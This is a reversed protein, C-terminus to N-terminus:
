AHGADAHALGMANLVRMEDHRSGTHRYAALEEELRRLREAPHLQFDDSRPPRDSQTGIKPSPSQRTRFDFVHSRWHWLDPAYRIFARELLETMWIVLVGPFANPFLERHLNATQLLEAGTGTSGTLEPSYDVRKELNVVMIAFRENPPALKATEEVRALLTRE